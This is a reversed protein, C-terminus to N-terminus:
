VDMDIIHNPIEKGKEQKEQTNVATVPVAFGTSFPFPHFYLLLPIPM